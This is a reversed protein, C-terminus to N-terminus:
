NDRSFRLRLSEVEQTISFGMGFLKTPSCSVKLSYSSLYLYSVTEPLNYILVSSMVTALAFIRSVGVGFLYFIYFCLVCFTVLFMVYCNLM